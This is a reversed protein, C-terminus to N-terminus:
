LLNSSAAGAGVTEVILGEELIRIRYVGGYPDVVVEGGQLFPRSLVPVGLVFDSAQLQHVQGFDATGLVPPGTVIDTAILDFAGIGGALTPTGLVPVGTEIGGALLQHAQGLDAAGLEPPGTVLDIAGLDASTSQFLFAGVDTSTGTRTNGAADLVSVFQARSSASDPGVGLGNAQQLRRDTESVFYDSLDVNNNNNIGPLTASGSAVNYGSRSGVFNTGNVSGVRVFLSNVLSAATPSPHVQYCGSGGDGPERIVTDNSVELAVDQGPVRYIIQTSSSSTSRMNEFINNQSIIRRAPAPNPNAPFQLWGAVHVGLPNPGRDKVYNDRFVFTSGAGAGMNDAIEMFKSGTGTMQIGNLHFCVTDSSNPTTFYLWASNSPAAGTHIIGPAAFDFVGPSRAERPVEFILPYDVSGVVAITEVSPWEVTEGLIWLTVKQQSTVLNPFKSNIKSIALNWPRGNPNARIADEATHGTGLGSQISTDLWLEVEPAAEYDYDFDDTRTGVQHAGADTFFGVRATGAIDAARVSTSAFAYYGHMPGAGWNNAATLKRDTASVFEFEADYTNEVGHLTVDEESENTVNKGSIGTHVGGMNGITMVSNFLLNNILREDTNTQGSRRNIFRNCNILTCNSIPGAARSSTGGLTCDDIAVRGTSSQIIDEFVCNYYRAFTNNVRRHMFAKPGSGTHAAFKVYCGDFIVVSTTSAAVATQFVMSTNGGTYTLPFWFNIGEFICWFRSASTHSFAYEQPFSTNDITIQPGPGGWVGQNPTAAVFRIYFDSSSNVSLTLRSATATSWTANGSVVVDIQEQQAILDAHNTNLATICAGWTRWAHEPTTGDNNGTTLGADLYYTIM